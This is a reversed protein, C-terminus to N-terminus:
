PRRTWVLTWAEGNKEFCAIQATAFGVVVRRADNEVLLGAICDLIPLHSVVLIPSGAEELLAAIAFPDDDPKLGQHEELGRRAALRSQVIEATQRARLKSSHLIADLEVHRVACWDAVAAAQEVGRPTLEPEGSPGTAAEGHRMLYVNM